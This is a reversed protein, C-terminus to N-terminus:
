EEDLATRCPQQQNTRAINGVGFQQSQELFSKQRQRLREDVAMEHLQGSLLGAEHNMPVSGDRRVCWTWPASSLWAM